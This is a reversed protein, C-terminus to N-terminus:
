QSEAVFSADLDSMLPRTNWYQQVTLGYEAAAVAGVISARAFRFNNVTDIDSLLAILRVIQDGDGGAETLQAATKLDKAGAGAGSTAQELKFDITGSTVIDGVHLDFVLSFASTVEWWGSNNTGAARSDPKLHDIFTLTERANTGIGM